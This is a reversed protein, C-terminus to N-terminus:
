RRYREPGGEFGGAPEGSACSSMSEAHQKCTRIMELNALSAPRSEIWAVRRLEGRPQEQAMRSCTSACMLIIDIPCEAGSCAGRLPAVLPWIRCPCAMGAALRMKIVGQRGGRM